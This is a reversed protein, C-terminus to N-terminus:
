AHHIFPNRGEKGVQAIIRLATQNVTWDRYDMPPPPPTRGHALLGLHLWHTGESSKPNAAHQQGRQLSMELDPHAVGTLALLAIGTTEPYSVPTKAPVSSVAM